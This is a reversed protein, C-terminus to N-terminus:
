RADRRQTPQAQNNADIAIQGAAVGEAIAKQAARNYERAVVKTFQAVLLVSIAILWSARGLVAAAMWAVGTLTGLIWIWGFIGGIIEHLKADRLFDQSKM